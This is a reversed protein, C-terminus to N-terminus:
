RAVKDGAAAAHDLVKRALVIEIKCSFKKCDHCCSSAARPVIMRGPNRTFTRWWKMTHYRQYFAPSLTAVSASIQPAITEAIKLPIKTNDVRNRYLCGGSAQIEASIASSLCVDIGFRLVTREKKTQDNSPRPQADLHHLNEAPYERSSKKKFAITKVWRWCSYM